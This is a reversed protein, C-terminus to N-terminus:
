RTSPNSQVYNGVEFKTLGDKIVIQVRINSEVQFQISKENTFFRNSSLQFVMRTCIIEM